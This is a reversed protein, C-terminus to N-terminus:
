PIFKTPHHQNLKARAFTLRMSQNVRFMISYSFLSILSIPSLITQYSALLMPVGFVLLYRNGSRVPMVILIYILFVYLSIFLLIGYQQIYSFSTNRSEIEVELGERIYYNNKGILIERSSANDIFNITGDTSGGRSIDVDKDVLFFSVSESFINALPSFTIGSVVVALALVPALVKSTAYKSPQLIFRVLHALIVIVLFALSLSLAGFLSLILKTYRRNQFLISDILFLVGMISGLQGPEFFIGNLRAISFGGVDFITHGNFIIIGFYIRYPIAYAGIPAFQYAPDQHFVILFYTLLSPIHIAIFYMLIRNFIKKLSIESLHVLIIFIIFNSIGTPYLVSFASINTADSITHVIKGANIFTYVVALLFVSWKVRLKIRRSLNILIFISALLSIFTWITNWIEQQLYYFTVYPPINLCILLTLLYEHISKLSFGELASEVNNM